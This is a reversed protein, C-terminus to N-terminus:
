DAEDRDRKIPENHLGISVGGESMDAAARTCVEAFLHHIGRSM